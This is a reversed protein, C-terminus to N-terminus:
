STSTELRLSVCCASYLAQRDSYDWILPIDDPEQERKNDETRCHQCLNGLINVLIEAPLLLLGSSGSNGQSQSAMIPILSSTSSICFQDLVTIPSSHPGKSETMGATPYRNDEMAATLMCYLQLLSANCMSAYTYGRPSVLSSVFCLPVVLCYRPLSVSSLVTSLRPPCAAQHGSSQM